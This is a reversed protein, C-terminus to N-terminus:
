PGAGIKRYPGLDVCALVPLHKERVDSERLFNTAVTRASKQGAELIRGIKNPIESAGRGMRLCANRTEPATTGPDTPQTCPKRRHLALSTSEVCGRHGAPDGPRRRSGGM